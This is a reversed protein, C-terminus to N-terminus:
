KTRRIIILTLNDKSGNNLAKCILKKAINQLSVDQLANEIETDSIYKAIGDSCIIYIDDSLIKFERIDPEYYRSGLSRTLTNEDSLTVPLHLAKNISAVTHEENLRSLYPARYRLVCSDGVNFLIASDSDAKMVLGAVTTSMGSYAQGESQKALIRYQACIVAKGIDAESGPESEAFTIAAIEAAIDGHACGGVGDFVAVTFPPIMKTYFDDETNIVSKGVLARDDNKERFGTLSKAFIEFM